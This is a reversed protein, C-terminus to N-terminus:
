KKNINILGKKIKDKYQYYILNSTMQKSTIDAKKRYNAEDISSIESLYFQNITKRKLCETISLNTLIEKEIIEKFAPINKDSWAIKVRGLEDINKASLLWPKSKEDNAIDNFTMNFNDKVFDLIKKLKMKALIMNELGKKAKTDSEWALVWRKGKALYLFLNLSLLTPIIMHKVQWISVFKATEIPNKYTQYYLEEASSSLESANKLFESTFTLNEQLPDSAELIPLCIDLIDESVIKYLLREKELIIQAEIIDDTRNAVDFIKEYAAEARKKYGDKKITHYSERYNEVFDKVSIKKSEQSSTNSNLANENSENNLNASFSSGAKMILNTYELQLGSSAFETFFAMTDDHKEALSILKIKFNEIDSKLNTDQINYADFGSLFPEINTQIISNM